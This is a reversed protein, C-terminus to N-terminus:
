GAACLDGADRERDAGAQAGAYPRAHQMNHLRDALKVLIVRIDKAMAVLMRRFNEAQKEFATNFPINLKTVGDVIEAVQDGFLTQLEEKTADTDEVTDHLIGASIAYEDLKM